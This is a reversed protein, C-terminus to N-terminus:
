KIPRKINSKKLLNTKYSFVISKKDNHFLIADDIIHDLLEQFPIGSPEWLYFSLSGPVTNIENIFIKRNKPQYLFDIRSVGRCDLMRFADVAYERIKDSIEEDIPAPIKRKSDSKGKTFNGSKSDQIYKDEYTLFEQWGIPQECVSAVPNKWGYVSCNIEVSDEVSEEIIIKRDYYLAVEIKEILEKRKNVKGIGISSGLNSPKVFMPYRLRAEINDIVDEQNHVWENKRFWVYRTTPLNNENFVSKMTIKDMGVASSMVGCGVYAIDMLEFLGQLTGDEGNSGHVVPLMVDLKLKNAKKFFLRGKEIYFNTEQQPIPYIRWVDSGSFKGKKFTEIDRFREGTFWSGEKSIYIPIINYKSSDLADMVQLATIISVEHEVSRSGFVIGVNLKSM